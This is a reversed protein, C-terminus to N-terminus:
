FSFFVHLDTQFYLSTIWLLLGLVIQNIEETFYCSIM